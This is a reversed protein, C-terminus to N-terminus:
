IIENSIEVKRFTRPCLPDLSGDYPIICLLSGLLHEHGGPHNIQLGSNNVQVIDIWAFFDQDGRVCHIVVSDNRIM